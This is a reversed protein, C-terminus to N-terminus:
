ETAGGYIMTVATPDVEALPRPFVFNLYNPITATETRRERIAWRAESDLAVLLSQDLHLDFHNFNWTAALESQPVQIHEALIKQSKEPNKQIFIIAKSLARLVHKLLEPEKQVMENGAILNLTMTYMWDSYYSVTRSPFQQQLRYIMPDWTSVAQAKGSKLTHPIDRHEIPIQEISHPDLRNFIIFLHLFFESITGPVYAITHLTHPEVRRGDSLAV